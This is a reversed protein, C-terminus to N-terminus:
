RGGPDSGAGAGVPRRRRSVRDPVELTFPRRAEVVEKVSREVQERDNPHIVSAFTRVASGIFDSAQYGSIEEIEDSLWEMTWHEDCVCRYVAGPINTVLSRM